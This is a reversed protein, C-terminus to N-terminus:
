KISKNVIKAIRLVWTKHLFYFSNNQIHFLLGVNYLVKLGLKLGFDLIM